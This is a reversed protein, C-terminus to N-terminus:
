ISYYEYRNRSYNELVFATSFEANQKFKTIKDFEYFLQTDELKHELM